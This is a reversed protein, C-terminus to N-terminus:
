DIMIFTVIPSFIDRMMNKNVDVRIIIRYTFKLTFIGTGREWTLWRAVRECVQTFIVPAHTYIVLAIIDSYPRNTETDAYVNCRMYLTTRICQKSVDYDM